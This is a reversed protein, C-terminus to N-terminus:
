AIVEKAKINKVFFLITVVSIVRHLKWQIGSSLLTDNGALLHLSVRM